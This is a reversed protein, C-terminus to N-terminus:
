SFAAGKGCYAVSHCGSCKLDAKKGCSECGRSQALSGIEVMSLPSPPIVFSVQFGLNKELKTLPSSKSTGNSYGPILRKQNDEMIKLFLKQEAITAFIRVLQGNPQGHRRARKMYFVADFANIRTAHM